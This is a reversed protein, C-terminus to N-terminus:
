KALYKRWVTGLAWWSITAAAMRETKAYCLLSATSSCHSCTLAMNAALNELAVASM